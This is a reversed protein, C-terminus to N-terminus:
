KNDIFSNNRKAIVSIFYIRKEKETDTDTEKKKDM